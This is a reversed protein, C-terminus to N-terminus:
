IWDFETKEETSKKDFNEYVPYRINVFIKRPPEKTVLEDLTDDIQNISIYSYNNQKYENILIEYIFDIAGSESSSGVGNPVISNLKIQTKM